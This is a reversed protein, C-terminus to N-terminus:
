RRRLAVFRQLIADLQDAVGDWSWDTRRAGAALRERMGADDVLLSIACALARPSAPPVVLGDVGNRVVEPLAGQATAVVPTGCAHSEAAVLGFGEGSRTPVISAHADQLLRVLSEDDVRGLWTVGPLDRARRELSAREPGDGAITLTARDGVAATRWAELLLDVGNRPVLRRVCVFRVSGTDPRDRGVTFRTCDVGNPVVTTTARPAISRVYAETFQSVCLVLDARELVWRGVVRDAVREITEIPRPYDVFPSHQMVVFPRRAQDAARAAAVTMPYVHGHSMIVDCGGAAVRLRATVGPTPFPVPVRFRQELPNWARHRRLEFDGHREREPTSPETRASHAAVSWGRAVLAEAHAAAVTEIGGTHPQWYHSTVLLRGRHVTRESATAPTM